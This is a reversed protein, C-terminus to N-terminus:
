SKEVKYGVGRVTKILEPYLKKRLHHVHVEISNSGVALDWGYLSDELKEKSFIRGPHAILETLLAYERRSLEITQEQYHVQRSVTDITIQQFEVITDVQGTQRRALARVRAKLEALEFPKILYDDAGKDLGIIKDELTDRATLILVPTTDKKARLRTLLELGDMGPLTLDLIILAFRNNILEDLAQKGDTLWDAQYGERQLATKIGDGLTPDDEVILIRM